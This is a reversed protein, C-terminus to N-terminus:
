KWIIVLFFWFFFCFVFYLGHAIHPSRIYIMGLEGVGCPQLSESLILIQSGLMGKGAPVIDSVDRM